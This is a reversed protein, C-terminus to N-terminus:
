FNSLLIFKNKTLDLTKETPGFYQINDITTLLLIGNPSNTSIHIQQNSWYYTLHEDVKATVTISQAFASSSSLPLYPSLLILLCPSLLILLCSSLPILLYSSLPILLSLFLQSISLHSILFLFTKL